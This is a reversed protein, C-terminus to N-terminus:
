EEEKLFEDADDRFEKLTERSILFRAYIQEWEDKLLITYVDKRTYGIIDIYMPSSMKPAAAAKKDAETDLTRKEPEQDEEKKDSPLSIKM